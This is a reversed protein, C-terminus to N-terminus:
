PTANLRQRIQWAVIDVSRTAPAFRFRGPGILEGLRMWGDPFICVHLADNIVVIGAMGPHTTVGRCPIGLRELHRRVATARM